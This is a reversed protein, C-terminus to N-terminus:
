TDKIPIMIKRTMTLTAAFVSIYIVLLILNKAINKNYTKIKDICEPIFKIGYNTDIVYEITDNEYYIVDITKEFSYTTLTNNMQFEVTDSTESIIDTITGTRKENSLITEQVNRQKILLSTDIIAISACSLILIFIVFILVVQKPMKNHKTM